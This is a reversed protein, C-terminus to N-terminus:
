HNDKKRYSRNSEGKELLAVAENFTLARVRSLEKVEAGWLPDEMIKLNKNEPRLLDVIQENYVELYSIEIKYEWEIDGAITKFLDRLTCPLIGPAQPLGTM